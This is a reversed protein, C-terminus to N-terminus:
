LSAGAHAIFIEKEFYLRREIRTGISDIYYESAIGRINKKGPKDFKIGFEAIHNIPVDKPINVNTIGDNKLSKLTDIDIKSFNSFDKNLKQEDRPILVELDTNYGFYPEVLFISIRLIENVNLTDKNGSFFNFYNSSLGLTDKNKNIVWVQNTYTKGDINKYEVISDFCKKHFKWKGLRNKERYSEGELILEGSTNYFLNYQISDNFHKVIKNIPNEKKDFFYISSDIKKGNFFEHTFKLNGSEYYEKYSGHYKGKSLNYRKKITGNNYYEVKQHNCGFCILCLLIPILNSKSM